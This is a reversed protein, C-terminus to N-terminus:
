KKKRKAKKAKTKKAPKATGGSSMSFGIVLIVAAAVSLGGLIYWFINAIKIKDLIVPVVGNFGAVTVIATYIVALIPLILMFGFANSLTDPAPEFTTRLVAATVPQDTEPFMQDDDAVIGAESGLTPSAQDAEDDSTYIEDLIGGLSTDDAQLSLDLLGSGSGFSDLSVDDEIEELSPEAGSTKTEGLLDEFGELSTGEAGETIDTETLIDDAQEDVPPEAQAITDEFLEEASSQGSADIGTEAIDIGSKDIITDSDTLENVDSTQDATDVVLSIDDKDTPEAQEIPLVSTDENEDAFIDDSDSLQVQQDDPALSMEIDEAEATDSSEPSEVIGTESALREVEDVKFLLNAGDRFERLRGEKVIERIQEETKKLKEAVEQLSYFMGAM